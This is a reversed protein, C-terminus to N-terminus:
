HAAELQLRGKVAKMARSASRGPEDFALSKVLAAQGTLLTLRAALTPRVLTRGEAYDEELDERSDRITFYGLSRGMWERYSRVASTPAMDATLARAFLVGTHYGEGYALFCYQQADTAAMKQRGLHGIALALRAFKEQESRLLPRMANGLLQTAALLRQDVHLSSVDVIDAVQSPDAALGKQITAEYDTFRQATDATPDDLYADFWCAASLTRKEREYRDSTIPLGFVEAAPDVFRPTAQVYWNDAMCSAYDDPLVQEDGELTAAPRLYAGAAHYQDWTAGSGEAPALAM